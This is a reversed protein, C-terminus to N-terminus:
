SRFMNRLQGGLPEQADGSSTILALVAMLALRDTAQRLTSIM